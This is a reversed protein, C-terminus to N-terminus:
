PAPGARAVIAAVAAAADAFGGMEAAIAEAARRAPADALMGLMAAAIEAATAAVPDLVRAVGLAACRAATLPQDAGMPLLVAPLGHALTATVIGSGGQSVVLACRPLVSGVPLYRHVRVNGPLAGLGAIDVGDGVTMVVSAPVHGAAALLRAFLDGSELNFVTGLTMHVVKGPPLGDRWAADGSEGCGGPRFRLAAGPRLAAPFPSLVLSGRRMLQLPDAALGLVDRLAALPAEVLAAPAFDEAAIVLVVAHPVGSREAAAMAGFDMEDCVVVDPRWAACLAVLREARERAIRGAYARRVAMRERAMDVPLLPRLETNTTNGGADFGAFGARAVAGLMASQCAFAVAHGAALAARGIPALPVFHGHGGAFSLLIRM